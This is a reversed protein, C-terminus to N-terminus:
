ENRYLDALNTPLGASEKFAIIEATYENIYNEKEEDTWWFAEQMLSAAIPIAELTRDWDTLELGLRRAFVDKLTYGMEYVAAYIIEARLVPSGEIVPMRLSGDKWILNLIKIADSGYKTTLRKAIYEQIKYRKM